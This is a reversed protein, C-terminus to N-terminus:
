KDDLKGIYKQLNNELMKKAFFLQRMKRGPM